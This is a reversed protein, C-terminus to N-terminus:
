HYIFNFPFFLFESVTHYSGNEDPIRYTIYSFLISKYSSEEGERVSSPFPAVLLLLLLLLLLVIIIRMLKKRKKTKPKKM